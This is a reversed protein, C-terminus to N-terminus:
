ISNLLTTTVPSPASVGIPLVTGSYQFLRILPTLPAAKILLKSTSFNLVLNAQSTFPNSASPKKPRFSARLSSGNTCYAKNEVSSATLSAPNSKSFSSVLRMPTIQPDPMPPKFVNKSSTTFKALPSPVGLNLGNKIGFIIASM